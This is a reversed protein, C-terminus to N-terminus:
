LSHSTAKQQEIEKSFKVIPFLFECVKQLCHFYSYFNQIDFFFFFIDIKRFHRDQIIWLICRWKAVNFDFLWSKDPRSPIKGDFFMM